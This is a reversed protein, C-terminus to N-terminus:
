GEKEFIQGIELSRSKAAELAAECLARINGSEFCKLAQETTGGPTAVGKMLEALSSETEIAMRAAGLATQLTLLKAVKASLGLHESGKQLSEMFLFFYAPGSGSLASLISMEHEHDVWVTLGVSRLISEAMERQDETVRGNAYLGTAGVQLLAPTNPIACVIPLHNGFWKQLLGTSIGAAISILLHNGKKLTERLENAVAQVDKPKVAIIVVQAKESAEKNVTTTHIGLEQKLRDRKPANRDSVWIKDKPFGSKILGRILSAAMNGGGIFAIIPYNM